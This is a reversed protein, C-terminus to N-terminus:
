ISNIKGCQPTWYHSCYFDYIYIREGHRIAFDLKVWVKNEDIDFSDLDEISLWQRDSMTQIFRYSDSSYFGKISNLMTDRIEFVKEESPKEDYYHDFLNTKWKPSDEWDKNKSESWSGKFRQIIDEESSEIPIERGYRTTKLIKELKQRLLESQELYNLRMMLLMIPVEVM